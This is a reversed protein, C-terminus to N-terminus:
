GGNAEERAKVKAFAALVERSWHRQLIALMSSLCLWRQAREKARVWIEEEEDYRWGFARMLQYIIGEESTRPFAEHLDAVTATGGIIKERLDQPIRPVSM